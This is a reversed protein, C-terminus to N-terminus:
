WPNLGCAQLAAETDAPTGGYSPHLASSIMYRQLFALQGIAGTGPRLGFNDDGFIVRLALQCDCVRVIRLHSMDRNGTIGVRDEDTPGLSRATVTQDVHM